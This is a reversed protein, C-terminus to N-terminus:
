RIFAYREKVMQVLFGFSLLLVPWFGIFASSYMDLVLGSVVAPFFWMVSDSRYLVLFFVFFLVLINPVVGFVPFHPFFSAQLFAILTFLLSIFLIQKM